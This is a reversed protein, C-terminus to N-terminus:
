RGGPPAKPSDLVFLTHHYSMLTPWRARYTEAHRERFGTRGFAHRWGEVTRFTFPRPVGHRLNLVWDWAVNMARDVRSTPTDELLIVTSRAIRAAERLLTEQEDWDEIHHLVVLLLVADFSADQVPVAAPDRLLIYPYGGVRNGFETVDAMTPVIGVRDALWRSIQGTGSGLDLVQQGRELWPAIKGGIENERLFV